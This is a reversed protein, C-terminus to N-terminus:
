KEQGITQDPIEVTEWDDGKGVIRWTGLRVSYEPTEITGGGNGGEQWENGTQDYVYVEASIYNSSVTINFQYIHQPLLEPIRSTLSMRIPIDRREGQSLSCTMYLYGSERIHDTYRTGLIEAAEDKPAYIASAVHIRDSEATSYYLPNGEENTVTGDERTLTIAITADKSVEAQRTAPFLRVTEGDAGAGSLRLDSITFEEVSESNSKYFNIGIRARRDLLKNSMTILGYGGITKSEPTSARFADRTPVFSFSGDDNNIVGPSVFVLLFNGDAGNLGADSDDTPDSGDDKLRCATLEEDTANKLYYTGTKVFKFRNSNEDTYYTMIRYTTGETVEGARTDIGIRIPAGDANGAASEEKTCSALSALGALLCCTARLLYSQKM